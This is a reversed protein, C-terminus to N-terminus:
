AGVEDGSVDDHAHTCMEHRGPWVTNKLAPEAMEGTYCQTRAKVLRGRSKKKILSEYGLYAV